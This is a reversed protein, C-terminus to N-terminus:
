LGWNTFLWRPISSKRFPKSTDLRVENKSFIVEQSSAFRATGSDYVEIFFVPRKRNTVYLFDKYPMRRLVEKIATFIKPFGQLSCFEDLYKDIAKGRDEFARVQPGFFLCSAVCVSLVLFKM